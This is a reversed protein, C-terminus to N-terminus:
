RPCRPRTTKTAPWMSSWKGGIAAHAVVAVALLEGGARTRSAGNAQDNGPARPRHACRGELHRPPLQARQNLTKLASSVMGGVGTLVGIFGGGFFAGVVNVDPVLLGVVISVVVVVLMTIAGAITGWSLCSRCCCDRCPFRSSRDSWRPPSRPGRRVPRPLSGSRDRGRDAPQIGQRRARAGIRSGRRCRGQIGGRAGPDREAAGRCRGPALLSARDGVQERGRGRDHDQRLRLDRGLLPQVVDVAQLGTSGLRASSGSSGARASSSRRTPSGSPTSGGRCTGPRRDRLDRCCRGRGRPSSRVRPIRAAAWGRPKAPGNYFWLGVVGAFAAWGGLLPSVPHVHVWERPASYVRDSAPSM